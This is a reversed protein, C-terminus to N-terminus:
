LFSAVCVIGMFLYFVVRKQLHIRGFSVFILKHNLLVQSVYM